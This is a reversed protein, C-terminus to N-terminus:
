KGSVVALQAYKRKGVDAILSVTYFGSQLEGTQWEVVSRNVEDIPWELVTQGLQNTLVLRVPLGEYGTLNVFLSAGYMPNPFVELVRARRQEELQSQLPTPGSGLISVSYDEVEGQGFSECPSAFAGKKAAIRMRTTMGNANSPISIIGNVVQNSGYQQFATEGVDSFDGDGNYDIWVTWYFDAPQGSWSLGPTLTINYDDGAMVMATLNTFDGYGCVGLHCKASPNNIGAFEVGAIWEQWPADAASACYTGGPGGGTILVGYDEIEGNQFSECPTAYAGKKASIRMRTVGEMANAPIAINESVVQNSGYTELVMEGPDTWDGDQNFDIWVRWYFDAPHGSWSLGPTLTINYSQDADLNATLNTFDGYGCETDCKGSPNNVNAVAVGAIWEQWPADASAACYDGGGECGDPIGNNNDDMNDDFGPCQDEADCVGDGDSDQFTGACNCNADYQDNTTCPDNDNCPDGVNCGTGGGIDVSYDEVEGEQFTECPTAYSGKKASVRMRTIGESASGPISISANVVQNDGYEELVMEGADTWDGDQNFDIWIRWYLDADHGSWSLGPTLTTNYSQGASVEITLSTWDGYGCETDCKGSPNDVNAVAVGAIWEQWPATGKAACYNGGSGESVTVTFSCTTQQNCTNTATYTIVHNGLPIFSGNDPGGTQNVSVSGNNCNTSASPDSWNITAGGAGSAVIEVINDPCTMTITTGGGTEEVLFIPTADLSINNVPNSTIIGTDSYDWEYRDLTTYGFSAPFSYTGQAFESLDITTEAWLMYVYIGDSRLFAYGKVGSPLNMQATRTADYTTQWLMDSTTKVATAEPNRVQNYPSTNDLDVYLGMKDFGSGSGPQDQLGFIHFQYVDNLIATVFSKMIYNRQGLTTAFFNEGGAFERPVNMETAITHKKPYTNGDYGYDDYIEQFFDRRYLLGQAARDSHREFFNINNLFTTGDFHPYSHLGHVEIYAGGGHPYEATVGGGNPNDTNRLVADLFSQYGFGAVTVFDEPAITEIVEYAIRLTRVYHEIPARLIYDCPEPDNDWWNGVPDGPERWGVGAFDFGPENWIEWFRVYQNYMSVTKYVYAAFYNEDNYPTGNTGGDWIPTYLNRFLESTNGPCYETLDRHWDVPGTLTATFEGMGLSQWYEFDDILLDYGFIELVSEALVPRTVKGGVGKVGNAPNGAIIDGLEQNSWLPFFGTNVGPRFVGTYPPNVTQANYNVQAIVDALPFLLLVLCCTFLKNMM